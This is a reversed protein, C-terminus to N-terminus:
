KWSVNLNGTSYKNNDYKIMYLKYKAKKTFCSKGFTAIGSINLAQARETVYVWKKKNTDYRYLILTMDASSTYTEYNIRVTMTSNKDVTRERTFLGAKFKFKAYYGGESANGWNGNEDVDHGEYPDTRAYTNAPVVTMESAMGLCLMVITAMVLKKVKLMINDEKFTLYSTIEIMRKNKNIDEVVPKLIKVCWVYETLM